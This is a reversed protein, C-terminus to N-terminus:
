AVVQEVAALVQDVSLGDVDITHDAVEAYLAARDVAMRRLVGAPDDALLPRHDGPRVRETLLSPDARLWVVTGGQLSADRLRGRNASSLVVGGAAAIVPPPVSGLASELVETELARFAAEGDTEFIQAVTRGTQAEIMVDSDLFPRDLRGALARGVTTKGTAM